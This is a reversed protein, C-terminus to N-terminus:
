DASQKTEEPEYSKIIGQALDKVRDALVQPQKVVCHPGMSLIWWVIENLGDVKCTFTISGDDHWQFEQTPHWLTDSITEAFEADFVLEVDYEDDSRIMRWANGFHDDLSFDKFIPDDSDCAAKALLSTIEPVRQCHGGTYPSKADIAGAILKIFSNLLAEQMNLM